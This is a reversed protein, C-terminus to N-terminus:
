SWGENKNQTQFVNKTSDNCTKVNTGRERKAYLKWMINVYNCFDCL